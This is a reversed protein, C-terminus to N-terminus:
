WLDGKDFGVAVGDLGFAFDARGHHFRGDLIAHGPDFGLAAAGAGTRGAVAIDIRGPGVDNPPGRHHFFVHQVERELHLRVAPQGALDLHLWLKIPQDNPYRRALPLSKTGGWLPPVFVTQRRPWSRTNVM